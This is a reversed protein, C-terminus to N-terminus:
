PGTNPRFMLNTTLTQLTLPFVLMTCSKAATLNGHITACKSRLSAVALYFKINKMEKYQKKIRAINSNYIQIGVLQV